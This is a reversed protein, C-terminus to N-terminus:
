IPRWTAWTNAANGNLTRDSSGSGPDITLVLDWYDTATTQLFDFSGNLGVISVQSASLTLQRETTSGNKRLSVTFDDGDAVNTTLVMGYSVTYAGLPPLYRKDTTNYFSGVNVTARNFALLTTSSVPIAQTSGNTDVKAYALPATDFTLAAAVVSYSTTTGPFINQKGLVIGVSNADAFIGTDMAYIMNQDVLVTNAKEFYIATETGGGSGGAWINGTISSANTPSGSSCNINISRWDGTGSGTSSFACDTIAFYAVMDLEISRNRDNFYCDIARFVPQVGTANWAVSRALTVTTVGRLYIGEYTGEILIGKDMSAFAVDNFWVEVPDSDGDLHVGHTMTGSIGYGSIAVGPGIRANRFNTGRIGKTWYKGSAQSIIEVNRIQPGAAQQGTGGTYTFTIATGNAGTAGAEMTFDSLNMQDLDFDTAGSATFILGGTTTQRLITVNKGQGTVNVTKDSITTSGAIQLVGAPLVVHGRDSVAVFALNLATSNAAATAGSWVGFWAAHIAGDYLRFFRGAGGGDIALVTGSDATATSAADYRWFGFGGDEEATRGYTCYISNDSLGSATTLATLAAYTAVFRVGNLNDLIGAAPLGLITEWDAGLTVDVNLDAATAYTIEGATNRALFKTTSTPPSPFAVNATADAFQLAPVRDLRAKLEQQFEALKDFRSEVSSANFAGGTTLDLDQTYSQVREAVIRQSSTLVAQSGILTFTRADQTGGVTYDTNLVLLSGDNNDDTSSAYRTLKVHSTSVFRIAVSSADVLSYPGLTGNGIIVVRPTCATALTM